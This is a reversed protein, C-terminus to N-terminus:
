SRATICLDLSLEKVRKDVLAAWGRNAAPSAPSPHPIDVVEIETEGLAKEIRQRAFKGVGVATRLYIDHGNFDTPGCEKWWDRFAPQWKELARMLRKNDRLGVNNPIKAELDVSSM